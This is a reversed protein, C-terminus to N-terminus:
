SPGFIDGLISALFVCGIPWALLAIFGLWPKDRFLTRWFLFIVALLSGSALWYASECEPFMPFLLGWLFLALPTASLSIAFNKSLSERRSPSDM